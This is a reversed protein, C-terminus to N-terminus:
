VKCLTFALLVDDFRLDAGLTAIVLNYSELRLAGQQHLRKFVYFAEDPDYAVLCKLLGHASRAGFNHLQVCFPSAYACLWSHPPPHMNPCIRRPAANSRPYAHSRAPMCVHLALACHSCVQSLGEWASMALEPRGVSRCGKFFAAFSLQNTRRYRAMTELLWLAQGEKGRAVLAEVANNLDITLCNALWTVGIRGKQEAKDLAREVAAPAIQRHKRLLKPIASAYVTAEEETLVESTGHMHIKEHIRLERTTLKNRLEEALYHARRKSNRAKATEPAAGEDRDLEPRQWQWTDSATATDTAQEVERM